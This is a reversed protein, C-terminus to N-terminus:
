RRSSFGVSSSYLRSYSYSITVHFICFPYKKWVETHKPVCVFLPSLTALTQSPVNLYDRPRKSHDDYRSQGRAGSAQRSFRCFYSVLKRNYSEFYFGGLVGKLYCKMAHGHREHPMSHAPTRTSCRCNSNVVCWASNAKTKVIYLLRHGMRDGTNFQYFWTFTRWDLSANCGWQLEGPPNIFATFYLVLKSSTEINFVISCPIHIERSKRTM